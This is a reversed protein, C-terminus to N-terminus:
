ARRGKRAECLTRNVHSVRDRVDLNYGVQTLEKALARYESRKAPKTSVIVGLCDANGHQGIRQYSLCSGPEMSGPLSPFLAIVDGGHKDPWKRFVVPTKDIDLM